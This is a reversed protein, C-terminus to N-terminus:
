CDTSSTTNHWRKQMECKKEDESEKIVRVKLPESMKEEWNKRSEIRHRLRAFLGHKKKYLHINKKDM